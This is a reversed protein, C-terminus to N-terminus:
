NIPNLGRLLINRATTSMATMLDSFYFKLSQILDLILDPLYTIPKGCEDSQTCVYLSSYLFVLVYFHYESYAPRSSSKQVCNYRKSM